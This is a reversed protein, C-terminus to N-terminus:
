ICPVELTLETGAGVASEITLAGDVSALRDRIGLLGSGAPDAGGPGADIVRIVIWGDRSLVNVRVPASGAHKLANTIAESTAFYAAAEVAPVCRKLNSPADLHVRTGLRAALTELAAVLGLDTLVAPHIGAALERLESLASSLEVEAADLVETGGSQERLLQLALGIALLRQQAGDHLDRELQARAANAALVIRARSEKVELLQARVEAQLRANELMLRTASGAATLLAPEDELSRDHRILALPADPEGVSTIAAHDDPELKPILRGQTDVYGSEVPFAVALQPDGLATALSSQLDTDERNALQVVLDGIRRYSLRERLLGIFFCLPVGLLGVVLFLTSAEASLLWVNGVGQVAAVGSLGAYFVVAALSSFYPLRLIRRERQGAGRYRTTVAYILGASMLIWAIAFTQSIWQDVSDPFDVVTFPQACSACGGPDGQAFAWWVGQISGLVYATVTLRRAFRGISRGTPYANLIHGGFSIQLPVSIAALTVLLRILPDSSEFELSDVLAGAMVICTALIRHAFMARGLIVAAIGVAIWAAIYLFDRVVTSVPADFPITVVVWADLALLGVTATLLIISTRDARFPSRRERPLRGLDDALLTTRAVSSEPM